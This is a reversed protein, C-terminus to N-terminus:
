FTFTMRLMTRVSEASGASFKSSYDHSIQVKENKFYLVRAEIEREGSQEFLHHSYKDHHFDRKEYLQIKQTQSFQDQQFLPAYDNIEFDMAGAAKTKTPANLMIAGICATFIIWKKREM